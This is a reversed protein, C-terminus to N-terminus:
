KVIKPRYTNPLCISKINIDNNIHYENYILKMTLFFAQALYAISVMNKNEKSFSIKRDNRAILTCLILVSDSVILRRKARMRVQDGSFIRVPLLDKLGVHAISKPNQEADM